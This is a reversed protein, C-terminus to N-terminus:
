RILGPLILSRAATAAERIAGGGGGAAAELTFECCHLRTWAGGGSCVRGPGSGDASAPSKNGKSGRQRRASAEEGRYKLDCSLSALARPVMCMLSVFHM